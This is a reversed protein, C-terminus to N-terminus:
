KKIFANLNIKAWFIELLMIIFSCFVGALLFFLAPLFEKMDVQAVDTVSHFCEPRPYRWHKDQYNTIGGEVMKQFSAVFM